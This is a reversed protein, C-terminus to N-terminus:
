VIVRGAVGIERVSLQHNTRTGDMNLSFAQIQEGEIDDVILLKQYLAHNPKTVQVIDNKDIRFDMQLQYKACFRELDRRNTINANIKRKGMAIKQLILIFNEFTMIPEDPRANFWWEKYLPFAEEPHYFAWNWMACRPGMNSAQGYKSMAFQVLRPNSAAAGMECWAEFCEKGDYVKKIMTEEGSNM